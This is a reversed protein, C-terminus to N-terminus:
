PKLTVQWDKIAKETGRTKPNLTQPNLTVQWDKIAKETGIDTHDTEDFVIGDPTVEIHGV